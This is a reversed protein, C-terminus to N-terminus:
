NKKCNKALSFASQPIKETSVHKKPIILTHGKSIPNIELIAISDKNEDIKYCPIKGSAISCFICQSNQFQLSNPSSSTKILNNQILFEELQKSNMAQIQEIASFKKDEPFTSEIQEIIQKKIQEIQEKPIM